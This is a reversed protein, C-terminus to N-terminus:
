ESSEAKWNIAEQMPNQCCSNSLEVFCASFQMLFFPRWIAHKYDMGWCVALNRAFCLFTSLMFALCQRFIAWFTVNSHKWIANEVLNQRRLTSMDPLVTQSTAETKGFSAFNVMKPMLLSSKDWIFIYSAESAIHSKDAFKLCQSCFDRSTRSNMGNPKEQHQERHEVLGQICWHQCSEYRPQWITM